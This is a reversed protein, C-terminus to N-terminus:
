YVFLNTRWVPECASEVAVWAHVYRAPQAAVLNALLLAVCVSVIQLRLALSAHSPKLEASGRLTRM